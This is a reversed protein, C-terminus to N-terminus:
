RKINSSIIGKDLEIKRLSGLRCILPSVKKWDCWKELKPYFSLNTNLINYNLKIVSPIQNSNQYKRKVM